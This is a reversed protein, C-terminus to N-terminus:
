TTIRYHTFARGPQKNLKNLLAVAKDYEDPDFSGKYRHHIWVYKAGVLKYVGEEVKHHKLKNM